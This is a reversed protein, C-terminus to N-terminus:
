WPASMSRAASRSGQLETHTYGFLIEARHNVLHIRGDDSVVVIGDPASELLSQFIAGDPRRRTKEGRKELTRKWSISNRKEM